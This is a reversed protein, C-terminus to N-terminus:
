RRKKWTNLVNKAYIKSELPVRNYIVSQPGANYAILAKYHNGNFRNLLIKYYKAGGLINEKPNFINKVGMERATAPMLQMLGKAGKSSVAYPDYNSEHLIISHILKPSLKYRRSALLIYRRYKVYNKSYFNNIEPQYKKEKNKGTHINAFLATVKVLNYFSLLDFGMAQYPILIFLLLSVFLKKM